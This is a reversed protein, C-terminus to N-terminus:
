SSISALSTFGWKFEIESSALYECNPEPKACQFDSWDLKTNKSWFIITDNKELSYGTGICVISIFVLLIKFKM